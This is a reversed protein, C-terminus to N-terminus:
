FGDRDLRFSILLLHRFFSPDRSRSNKLSWTAPAPLPRRGGARRGPDRPQLACISPAAPAWGPGLPRSSPPFLARWPGPGTAPGTGALGGRRRSSSAEWVHELESAVWAWGFCSEKERVVEGIPGRPAKGEGGTEWETERGRLM